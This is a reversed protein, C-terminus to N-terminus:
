RRRDRDMYAQNAADAAQGAAADSAQGAAASANAADASVDAATDKKQCACVAVGLILISTLTVIRM